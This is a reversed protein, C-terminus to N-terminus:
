ENKMVNESNLSVQSNINNENNDMFDITNLIEEKSGQHKLM